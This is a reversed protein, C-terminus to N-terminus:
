HKKPAKPTPKPPELFDSPSHAPEATRAPHGNGLLRTVALRSATNAARRAPIAASVMTIAEVAADRSPPYSSSPAM